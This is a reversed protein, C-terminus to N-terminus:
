GTLSMAVKSLTTSTFRSYSASMVNVCILEVPSMVGKGTPGLFVMRLAVPTLSHVKDSLDGTSFGIEPKSTFKLLVKRSTEAHYVGRKSPFGHLPSPIMLLALPVHLQEDLSIAYTPHLSSISSV